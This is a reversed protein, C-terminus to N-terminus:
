GFPAYARTGETIERNLETLRRVIEGSDQVATKPWGYCAAVAEDLQRHLKKLDAYAGDDMLNYLKTLGFNEARCIEQRRVVVARALEAVAERQAPTM